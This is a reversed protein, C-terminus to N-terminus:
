TCPGTRKLSSMAAITTGTLEKTEARLIAQFGKRALCQAVPAIGRSALALAHTACSGSHRIEPPFTRRWTQTCPPSPAAVAPLRWHLHSRRRRRVNQLLLHPPPPPRRGALCSCTRPQHLVSVQLHEPPQGLQHHDSPPPQGSTLLEQCAPPTQPTSSRKSGPVRAITNTRATYTEAARLRTALWAAVPQRAPPMRFRHFRPPVVRPCSSLFPPRPNWKLDGMPVLMLVNVGGHPRPGMGVGVVPM